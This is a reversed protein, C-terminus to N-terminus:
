RVLMVTGRPPIAPSEYAGIDVRNPKTGPRGQQIRPLGSLDVADSMWLQNTGTDICPSTVPDRVLRGDAGLRGYASQLRFDSGAANVFLPNGSINGDVGARPNTGICNNVFVTPLSGYVNSVINGYFIANRISCYPLASAHVQIGMANNTAVTLNELSSIGPSVGSSITTSAAAFIGGGINNALLLSRLQYFGRGLWVAGGHYLPTTAFSLNSQWYSINGAFIGNHIKM